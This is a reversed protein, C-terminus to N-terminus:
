STQANDGIILRLLSPALEAGDITSDRRVLKLTETSEYIRGCKVCFRRRVILASYSTTRAVRLSGACDPMPCRFPSRSRHRSM